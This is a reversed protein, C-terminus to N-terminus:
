GFSPPPCPRVPRLALPGTLGSRDARRGSRTAPHRRPRTRHHAVLALCRSREDAAHEAIAVAEEAITVGRAANSTLAMEAACRALVATREEHPLSEADSLLQELVDLVEVDPSGSRRWAGWYTGGLVVCARVARVADNCALASTAADLLPRRAGLHDGAHQLMFGRDILVDIRELVDHHPTREIVELARSTPASM